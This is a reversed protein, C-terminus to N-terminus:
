KGDRTYCKDNTMLEVLHSKWLLNQFTRNCSTMKNPIGERYSPLDWVKSMTLSTLLVYSSSLLCWPLILCLSSRWVLHTKNKLIYTVCTTKVISRVYFFVSKYIQINESYILNFTITCHLQYKQLNCLLSHSRLSVCFACLRKFAVNSCNWLSSARMCSFSRCNFLLILNNVDFNFASFSSTSFQLFQNIFELMRIYVDTASNEVNISSLYGCFRFCM